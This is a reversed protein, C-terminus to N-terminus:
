SGERRTTFVLSLFWVIFLAAIQVPPLIIWLFFPALASGPQFLAIYQYFGGFVFIWVAGVTYFRLTLPAHLMGASGMWYVGLPLLGFGWLLWGLGPKLLELLIEGRTPLASPLVVSLVGLLLVVYRARFLWPGNAASKGSAMWYVATAVVMACFFFFM